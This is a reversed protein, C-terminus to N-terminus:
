SRSPPAFPSKDAPGACGSDPQGTVIPMPILHDRYAEGVAITGAAGDALLARPRGRLGAMELQAWLRLVFGQLQGALALGRSGELGNVGFALANFPRDGQGGFWITQPTGAVDTQGLRM